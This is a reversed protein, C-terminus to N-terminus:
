GLLLHSVGVLAILIGAKSKTFRKRIVFAIALCSVSGAAILLWTWFRSSTVPEKKRRNYYDLLKEEHLKGNVAENTETDMYGSGAPFEFHFDDSTLGANIKLSAEDLELHLRSQKSSYLFHVSGKSPFWHDKVKVFKTTEYVSKLNGAQILEIKKPLYGADPNLTFLIDYEVGPNNIETTLKVRNEGVVSIKGANYAAEIDLKLCFLTIPVFELTFHPTREAHRLGSLPDFVFTRYDKGDYCYLSQQWDYPPYDNRFSANRIWYFGGTKKWKFQECTKFLFLGPQVEKANGSVLGYGERPTSLIRYSCQVDEIQTYNAVWKEIALNATQGFASDHWFNLLCGMYFILAYRIM